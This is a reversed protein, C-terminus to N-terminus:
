GVRPLRRRQERNLEERLSTANLECMSVMRGDVPAKFCCAALRERGEDTHLERESMFEHVVVAFPWCAVREGRWVARAIHPLLRRETGVRYLVYASACLPLDPRRAFLGLLRGLAEARRADDTGLHLADSRELHDLFRADHEEGERAVEVVHLEEGTRVVFFLSIHNCAEHGFHFTHPNLRAGAGEEVKQWLRAGSLAKARTRGVDATPQLSILRFADANEMTFRVIAPVDELNEPTVTVTHAAHLPEGHRARSRRILQAFHARVSMLAQESAGTVFGDRGRQTGDVHIAIKQLGAARLADLYSPDRALTQGNTMVMPDLGIARAYRVIRALETAPMLTVEGATIQTNGGPGLAARLADLQAKVDEFPLPPTRQATPALYCATCAFDCVELVSHTAGCGANRKGLWQHRLDRVRAPLDRTRRECSESLEDRPPRHVLGRGLDGLMGRLEHWTM